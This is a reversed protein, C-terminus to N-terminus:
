GIGAAIERIRQTIQPQDPDLALSSQLYQIAEGPEGRSQALESKLVLMEKLCRDISVANKHLADGIDELLMPDLQAAFDTFPVYAQEPEFAIGFTEALWRVDASCLQRVRKQWELPLSFPRHGISEFWSRPLNARQANRKGHLFVPYRRNIADFILVAELSLAANVRQDELFPYDGRQEGIAELFSTVLSRQQACTADFNIVRLNEIGFADIFRTLKDRYNPLHPYRISEEILKGGLVIEQAYSIAFRVPSRVFCVVVVDAVFKHLFERLRTVGAAGLSSFGEASLVIKRCGADALQASFFDLVEENWRRAAEVTGLGTRLNRHEKHPSDCFPSYLDAHDVDRGPYSIGHKRLADRAKHLSSQISSSGTKHVGIHLYLTRQM